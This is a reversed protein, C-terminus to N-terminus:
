IASGTEPRDSVATSATDSAIPSVRHYEAQFSALASGGFRFFEFGRFKDTRGLSCEVFYPTGTSSACLAGRLAVTDTEGVPYFRDAIAAGVSFDEGSSANGRDASVNVRWGDRPFVDNDTSDFEAFLGARKVTLDTDPIPFAPDSATFLSDTYRGAVGLTLQESVGYGLSLLYGRADQRVPIAQGDVFTDYYLTGDGVGFRLQVRRNLLSLRGGVALLESDNENWLVSAGLFSTRSGEDAQFLYGGLLYVSNGLTPTSRPVPAAFFSGSRFGFGSDVAPEATETIDAFDLEDGTTQASSAGAACLFLAFLWGGRRRAFPRAFPM